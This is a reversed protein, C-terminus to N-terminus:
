RPWYGQRGQLPRGGRTQLWEDVEGHTRLLQHHQHHAAPLPWKRRLECLLHVNQHLRPYRPSYQMRANAWHQNNKTVRSIATSPLSARAQLCIARAVLQSNHSLISLFCVIPVPIDALRVTTPPSKAYITCASKTTTFSISFAICTYFRISVM